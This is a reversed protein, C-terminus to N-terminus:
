AIELDSPHNQEDAGAKPENEGRQERDRRVRYQGGVAEADSIHREGDPGPAYRPDRETQDREDEEQDWEAPALPPCPHREPRQWQEPQRMEREFGVRDVIEHNTDDSRRARDRM